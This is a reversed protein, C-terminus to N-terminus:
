NGTVLFDDFHASTVGTARFAGLRVYTKVDGMIPDVSGRYLVQGDKVVTIQLENAVRQVRLELRGEAFPDLEKPVVNTAARDVFFLKKGQGRALAFERANETTGGDARLYVLGLLFVGPLDASLTTDVSVVVREPTGLDKRLLCNALPVGAEKTFAFTVGGDAAEISCGPDIDDSTFRSGVNGDPADFSTCFLLDAADQRDCFTPPGADDSGTAVDAVQVVDAASAADVRSDVTGGADGSGGTLGELSACAPNIM